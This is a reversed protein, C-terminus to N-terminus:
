SAQGFGKAARVAVICDPAAAIDNGLGFVRLQPTRVETPQVVTKGVQFDVVARKPCNFLVM